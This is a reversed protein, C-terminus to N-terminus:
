HVRQGGPICVIADEIADTGSKVTTDLSHMFRKIIEHQTAMEKRRANDCFYYVVIYLFPM